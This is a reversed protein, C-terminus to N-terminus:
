IFIIVRELSIKPMNPTNVILKDWDFEQNLIKKLESWKIGVKDIFFHFFVM